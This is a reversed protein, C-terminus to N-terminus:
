RTAGTMTQGAAHVSRLYTAFELNCLANARRSRIFDVVDGEFRLQQLVLGTMLGSRNWGMQCHVLANGDGLIHDAVERAIARMDDLNVLRISGDGIPYCIEAVGLSAPLPSDGSLNVVLDIRRRLLDELEHPEITGGQWLDGPLSAILNPAKQGWRGGPRPSRVRQSATLRRSFTM